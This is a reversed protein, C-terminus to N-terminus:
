EEDSSSETDSFLYEDESESSSSWDQDMIEPDSEDSPPNKKNPDAYLTAIQPFFFSFTKIMFNREQFLATNDHKAFVSPRLTDLLPLVYKQNSFQQLQIFNFLLSPNRTYKALIM